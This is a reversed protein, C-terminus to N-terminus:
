LASKSQLLGQSPAADTLPLSGQEVSAGAFLFKWLFNRKAPELGFIQQEAGLNQSFAEFRCQRFYFVLASVFRM